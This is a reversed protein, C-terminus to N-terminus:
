YSLCFSFYLINGSSPLILIKIYRPFTKWFKYFTIKHLKRATLTNGCVNSLYVSLWSINLTKIRIVYKTRLLDAFLCYVCTRLKIFQCGYFEKLFYRDKLKDFAKWRVILLIQIKFSGFKLIALEYIFLYVLFLVM